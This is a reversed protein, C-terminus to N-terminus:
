FQGAAIDAPARVQIDAVDAGCFRCVKAERKIVEACQPCKKVDGGSLAREDLATQDRRMILAHPLAIIFLAAGYLWWLMFNRGKGAAIAAPILGILAALILFEM